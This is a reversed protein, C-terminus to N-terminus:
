PQNTSFSLVFPTCFEEQKSILNHQRLFRVQRESIALLDKPLDGSVHVCTLLYQCRRTLWDNTGTLHGSGTNNIPAVDLLDYYDCADVWQFYTRMADRLAPDYLPGLVSVIQQEM